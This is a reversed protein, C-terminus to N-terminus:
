FMLLHMLSNPTVSRPWSCGGGSAVLWLLWLLWLRWLLWLWALCGLWSGASHILCVSCAGRSLVKEIQTSHVTHQAPSLTRWLWGSVVNRRRNATTTPTCTRTKPHPLKEHIANSSRLLASGAFHDREEVAAPDLLAM